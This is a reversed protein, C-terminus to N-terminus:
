IDRGSGLGGGLFGVVFGVVFLVAFSRLDLAGLLLPSTVVFLIGTGVGVVTRVILEGTLWERFACLM